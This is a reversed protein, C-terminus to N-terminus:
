GADIICKQDIFPLVKEWKRVLGQGSYIREFLRIANKGCFTTVFLDGCSRETTSSPIGSWDCVFDTVERSALVQITLRNGTVSITGDGDILGVLWSGILDDKDRICDPIRNHKSKLPEINWLKMDEVIFPSNVVLSYKTKHGRSSFVYANRNTGIFRRFGEVLEWDTSTLEVEFKPNKNLKSRLCGDASLLGAWYASETNAESFAAHNYDFKHIMTRTSIGYRRCWWKVKDPSCKWEDAVKQFVKPSPQHLSLADVIEERSPRNAKKNTLLLDDIFASFERKLQEESRDNVFVYKFSNWRLAIESQHNSFSFHNPRIIFVSKGGMKEILSKENPFRVDDVYCLDLGEIKQRTREVHINPNNKRLVDTGIFQMADRISSISRPGGFPITEGTIEVLRQHESAGWILPQEFAREKAVPDYFHEIKLNYLEAITEKLFDAFSVRVFGKQVLISSIASKGSGKRGSVGLIFKM